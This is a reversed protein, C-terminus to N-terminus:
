VPRGGARLWALVAARGLVAPDAGFAGSRTTVLAARPLHARWERAVAVPHVADGRVAALGAPAALRALETPRPGAAAAAAELSAALGAGYGAWARALEDALWGPAAARVEALAGATGVTRVRAASYRAALAAPATAPDGTWAPLALLLGAVGGPHDAAWRAALHAGLSVGGVLLDAGRRVAAAAVRDLEAVLGAVAAPGPRPDLAVLRVGV